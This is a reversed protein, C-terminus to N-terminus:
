SPHQRPSIENRTVRWSVYVLTGYFVLLWLVPITGIHITAFPLSSLTQAVFIIYSLLIYAPTALIPAFIGFVLGFFSSLASTFMALPMVVLALLNAPLSVVSLTGQLYLILPTVAVQSSLTTAVIDRLGLTNPIWQMRRSLASSFSLIGWTALISLQFGPDYALVYPNWLVIAFAVAALARSALYTRGSFTGVMALSAMASARLSSSALGTILAFLIAISIGLLLRVIPRARFYLLAWSLGFVVIMINYGSLVVIHTLGVDRFNESLEKGLGRKDGATIGGALSAHPEPLAYTLGRVYSQKLWLAYSKIINGEGWYPADPKQIPQIEAFVLEYLIGEKALFAPYNFMRGGETKFPKPLRLTGEARVRDGYSIDAHLPGAVLIYPSTKLSVGNIHTPRVTFRTSNERTDPEDVVVGELLVSSDVVFWPHKDHFNQAYEMRAVGFAAAVLVVCAVYPHMRKNKAISFVIGLSTVVLLGLLIWGTHTISAVYIGILFGIVGAWFYQIHM